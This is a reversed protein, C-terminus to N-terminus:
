CYKTSLSYYSLKREASTEIETLTNDVQCGNPTNWGFGITLTVGRVTANSAAMAKLGEDKVWLRLSEGPSNERNETMFSRVRGDENDNHFSRVRETKM